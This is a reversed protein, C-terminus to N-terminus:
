LRSPEILSPVPSTSDPPSNSGRTAAQTLSKKLYFGGLRVKWDPDSSPLMLIRQVEPEFGSEVKHTLVRNVGHETLEKAMPKTIRTGITHYSVPEELYRGVTSGTPLYEAGQRPKWNKALESYPVLDGVTYGAVGEPATIRVRDLFGRALAEVNRRHSPVGNEKLIGGFKEVFYKRAAGLGKHKAIEAPNPVGSTLIDGAEVSEGPKVTIERGPPVYIKEDDVNLYQGGQDAPEV